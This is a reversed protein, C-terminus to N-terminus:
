DGRKTYEWNIKIDAKLPLGADWDDNREMEETLVKAAAGADEELCQAVVEDHTHMVVPMWDSLDNEGLSYSGAWTMEFDLRKLTRRLVSAATAQTANEAFKGYWLTSRAYGKRYTMQYRDVLKKTKKDEVERWEWKIGPYTLLRGCPLAMFLTGGLYSRDYVFAVRGATCIDDPNEIASNAAGWLGYSGKRGHAGWFDLAWQNESRWGAVVEKATVPDVYVRYNVGMAILAGVGGGFTLSLEPVKGRSQRGDKADKNLPHTKDRYIAWLEEGTLGALPGSKILPAATRVYVDPKTPDEDSERFIDLKAEGGPSDALWPTVRAEINAWDGWVLTKKPAAIFAPRLLFSLKKAPPSGRPNKETADLLQFEDLWKADLKM